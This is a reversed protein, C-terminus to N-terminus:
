VPVCLIPRVCYCNDILVLLLRNHAGAAQGDITLVYTKEWFIKLNESGINLQNCFFSHNHHPNDGIQIGINM